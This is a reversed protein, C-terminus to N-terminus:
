NLVIKTNKEEIDLMTTSLVDGIKDVDSLLQQVLSAAIEMFPSIKEHSKSDSM